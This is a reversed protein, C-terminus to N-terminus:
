VAGKGARRHGVWSVLATVAWVIGGVIGGIMSGVLWGVVLTIQAVHIGAPTEGYLQVPDIASLGLLVSQGAGMGLLVGVIFFPKPKPLTWPPRYTGFPSRRM